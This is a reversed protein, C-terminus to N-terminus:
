RPGESAAPLADILADIRDAVAARATPSVPCVGFLACFQLGEIACWVAMAGAPDTTEASIRQWNASFIDRLVGSATPNEAHAAILAVRVDDARNLHGRMTANIARLTPNPRDCLAARNRAIAQTIMVTFRQLMGDVLAQKSPFHYLVGGKSVGAERAAADLTLHRAGDRLAVAQAAELIRTRANREPAPTM